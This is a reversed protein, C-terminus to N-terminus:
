FLELQPNLFLTIKREKLAKEENGLKAYILALNYHANLHYAEYKITENFHFIAEDIMNALLYSCGLNFHAQANKSDATIAQRYYKVAEEANGLKSSLVGLSNYIMGLRKRNPLVTDSIAMKEIGLDERGKKFYRKAEKFDGQEVFYHALSLNAIYNKPM